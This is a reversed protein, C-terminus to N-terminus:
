GFAATVGDGFVLAKKLHVHASRHVLAGGEHELLYYEVWSVIENDDETEGTCRLLLSEHMYEIGGNGLDVPISRDVGPQPANLPHNPDYRYPADFNM